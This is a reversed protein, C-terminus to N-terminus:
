TEGNSEKDTHSEVMTSSNQVYKFKARAFDVAAEEETDYTGIGYLKGNLSIAANWKNGATKFHVGQYKSTEYRDHNNLIPPQSPVDTLDIFQRKRRSGYKFLARAYDVAAEEENAHEAIFCKMGDLSITAKWKNRRKVFCVGQYKSSAGKMNGIIPLQPPVDTLDVFKQGINGRANVKGAENEFLARAYDVAAEEEENEHNGIHHQKGDIMSKAMWKNRSYDFYVGQYKSSAGKKNNKTPLKLPVDTLDICMQKGKQCKAAEDDDADDLLLPLKKCTTVTTHQRFAAAKGDDEATTDDNPKCSFFVDHYSHGNDCIMGGDAAKNQCGKLKKALQNEEGENRHYKDDDNFNDGQTNNRKNNDVDDDRNSDEAASSIKVSSIIRRTIIKTVM